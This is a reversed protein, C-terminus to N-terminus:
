IGTQQLLTDLLGDCSGGRAGTLSGVCISKRRSGGQGSMSRCCVVCLKIPIEM